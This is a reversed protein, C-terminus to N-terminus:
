EEDQIAFNKKFAETKSVEEYTGSEVIKGASLVYVKDANKITNLRHAIVITTKVKMINELSSQIINETDADLASTAEDLVFLSGDKYIARALALRQRQGGSLKKGNEGVVYDDQKTLDKIFECHALRIAENYRDQDFELGYIINEKITTNFIGASQNVYSMEDRVSSNDLTAIDKDNILVKGSSCSRFGFLLTLISSKGAGTKGVLAITEGQNITFNIDKLINKKGIKLNANEFEISNIQQNLKEAGEQEQPLNLINEIRKIYTDLMNLVISNKTVVKIPAYLMLLATLFAFFDGVTM